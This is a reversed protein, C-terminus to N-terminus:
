DEAGSEAPELDIGDFWRAWSPNRAICGRAETVLPERAMDFDVVAAAEEVRSHASGTLMDQLRTKHEAMVRLVYALHAPHMAPKVILRQYSGTGM